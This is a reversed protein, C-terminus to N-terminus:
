RIMSCFFLLWGYVVDAVEAYLLMTPISALSPDLLMETAVHTAEFELFGAAEYKPDCKLGVDGTPRQLLGHDQVICCNANFSPALVFRRVAYIRLVRDDWGKWPNKKALWTYAEEKSKQINRRSAILKKM